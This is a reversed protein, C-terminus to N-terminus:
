VKTEEDEKEDGESDSEDDAPQSYDSDDSSQKGISSDGTSQRISMIAAVDDEDFKRRKLLDSISTLFTYTNLIPEKTTLANVGPSSTNSDRQVNGRQDILGALSNAALRTSTLASSTVGLFTTIVDCPSVNQLVYRGVHPGDKTEKRMVIKANNSCLEHWTHHCLNCVRILEDDTSYGLSTLNFPHACGDGRAAEAIKKIKSEQNKPETALSRKPM